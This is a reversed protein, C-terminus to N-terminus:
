AATTRVQEESCGTAAATRAILDREFNEHLDEGLTERIRRYARLVRIFDIRRARASHILMEHLMRLRLGRQDYLTGDVDFVVLKIRDWDFLGRATRPRV